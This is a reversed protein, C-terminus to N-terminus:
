ARIIAASWCKLMCIVHYIATSKGVRGNSNCVQHRSFCTSAQVSQDGLMALAGCSWPFVCRTRLPPTRQPRGVNSLPSASPVPSGWVADTTDLSSSSGHQRSSGLSAPPGKGSSSGPTARSSSGTQRDTAFADPPSSRSDPSGATTFSSSRRPLASRGQLLTQIVHDLHCHLQIICICTAHVHAASNTHINDRMCSAIEM